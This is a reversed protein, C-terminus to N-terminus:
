HTGFYREFEQPTVTKKGKGLENRPQLNVMGDLETRWSRVVFRRM